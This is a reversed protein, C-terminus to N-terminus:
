HYRLWLYASSIILSMVMVPVGYAMFKLFSIRKGAAEALGVVIVNASAGVLTGNGGLSAGLALAWWVPQLTPNHLTAVPLAAPHIDPSTIADEM